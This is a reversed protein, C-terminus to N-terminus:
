LVAANDCRARRQGAHFHYMKNNKMKSLFGIKEAFKQREEKRRIVLGFVNRREGYGEIISSHINQENLLKQIDILGKKNISYLRIEHRLVTGEDEFFAKLFERKIIRESKMIAEPVIWDASTYPGYRMLNDYMRKSRVFVKYM